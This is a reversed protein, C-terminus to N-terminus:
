GRGLYTTLGNRPGMEAGLAVIESWLNVVKLYDSQINFKDQHQHGSGSYHNQHTHDRLSASSSGGGAINLYLSGREGNKGSFSSVKV